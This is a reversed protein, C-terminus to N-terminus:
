YYGKGTIINYFDESTVFGDDDLDAKKFMAQIEEDTMEEGLYQAVKKLEEWSVKQNDNADYFKFVKLIDEKKDKESVKSTVFNFFENFDIAGSHDEDLESLIQYIIRNKSFLGLKEFAAQIEQPDVTGDRNNDFIDFAKKIEIVDEKSVSLKVYDDANFEDAVKKQAPAGKKAAPQTAQPAGKKVPPMEKRSM